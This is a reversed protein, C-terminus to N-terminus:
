RQWTASAADPRPDLVLRLRVMTATPREGGRDFSLRRPLGTDDFREEVVVIWGDQEIRLAPGRDPISRSPRGPAARGAIWDPLGAVPLGFGLVSEALADADAGHWTALTGDDKPATLTAGGADQEVRAVTNGLPSALDLRTRGAYQALRFRGSVADNGSDRQISAAFRGTYVQTPADAPALLACGGFVATSLLGLSAGRVLGASWSPVAPSRTLLV